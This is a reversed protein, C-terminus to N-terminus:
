QGVWTFIKIKCFAYITQQQPQVYTNVKKSFMIAHDM